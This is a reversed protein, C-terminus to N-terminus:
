YKPISFSNYRTVVGLITFEPILSRDRFGYFFVLFLEVLKYLITSKIFFSMACMFVICLRRYLHFYVLGIPFFIIAASLEVIKIM